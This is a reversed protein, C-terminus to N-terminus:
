ADRIEKATAKMVSAFRIDDKGVEMAWELKDGPKLDLFAVIGEPVTTKISKTGKKATSATSHLSLSM